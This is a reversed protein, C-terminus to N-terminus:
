AGVGCLVGLIVAEACQGVIFKHFSDNLVHFVKNVFQLFYTLIITEISYIYPRLITNDKTLLYIAFNLSIIGLHLM